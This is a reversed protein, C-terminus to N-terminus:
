GEPMDLMKLVASRRPDAYPAGVAAADDVAFGEEQIDSVRIIMTALNHDVFSKKV